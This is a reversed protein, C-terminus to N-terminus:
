HLQFNLSAPINLKAPYLLRNLIIKGGNCHLCKLFFMSSHRGGYGGDGRAGTCGGSGGPELSLSGARIGAGHNGNDNGRSSDSCNSSNSSSCMSHRPVGSATPIKSYIPQVRDFGFRFLSNIVFTDALPDSRWSDFTGHGRAWAFEDFSRRLRDGGVTLVGDFVFESIIDYLSSSSSAGNFSENTLENSWDDLEDDGMEAKGFFADDSNYGTM